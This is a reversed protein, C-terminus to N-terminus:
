DNVRYNTNTDNFTRDGFNRPELIQVSEFINSNTRERESSKLQNMGIAQGVAEDYLPDVQKQTSKIKQKTNKETGQNDKYENASL